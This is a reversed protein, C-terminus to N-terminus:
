GSEEMGDYLFTRAEGTVTMRFTVEAPPIWGTGYGWPTTLIVSTEGDTYRIRHRM